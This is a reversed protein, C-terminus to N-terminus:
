VKRARSCGDNREHLRHNGRTHLEKKPECAVSDRKQFCRFNDSLQLKRGDRGLDAVGWYPQLAATLFLLNSSFTGETQHGKRNVALSNRGAGQGIAWARHTIDLSAGSGIALPTSGDKSQLDGRQERGGPRLLVSTSKALAM